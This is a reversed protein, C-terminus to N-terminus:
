KEWPMKLSKKPHIRESHICSLLMSLQMCSVRFVHIKSMVCRKGFSHLWPAYEIVCLKSLICWMMLM